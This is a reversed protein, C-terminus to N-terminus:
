RIESSSSAGSIDRPASSQQNQESFAGGGGHLSTLPKDLNQVAQTDNFHTGYRMQLEDANTTKYQQFSQYNMGYKIWGYKTMAAPDQSLHAQIESSSWGNAIAQMQLNPDLGAAQWSSQGTLEYATEDLQRTNQGWQTASMGNAAWPMSQQIGSLGAMWGFLAKTDWSAMGREVAWQLQLPTPMYKNGAFSAFQEAVTILQFFDNGSDSGPLGWGQFPNAGGIGTGMIGNTNGNNWGTFVDAGNRAKAADMEDLYFQEAQGLQPGGSPLGYGSLASVAADNTPDQNYGM